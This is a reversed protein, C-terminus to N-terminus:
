YVQLTLRAWTVIVQIFCRQSMAAARRKRAREAPAWDTTGSETYAEYLKTYHISYSTIVDKLVFVYNIEAKQLKGKANVQNKLFRVTNDTLAASRIKDIDAVQSSLSSLDNGTALIGDPSATPAITGLELNGTILGTDISEWYEGGGTGIGILGMVKEFESSPDLLFAVFSDGDQLSISFNGDAAVDYETYNEFFDFTM